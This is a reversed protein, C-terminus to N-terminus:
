AHAPCSREDWTSFNVVTFTFTLIPRYKNTSPPVQHTLVPCYLDIYSTVTDTHLPVPQYMIISPWYFATSTLIQNQQTLIPHNQNTSPPVRDTYSPVAQYLTSSPGYLAKIGTNISFTSIQDSTVMAPRLSPCCRVLFSLAVWGISWPCSLHAFFAFVTYGM